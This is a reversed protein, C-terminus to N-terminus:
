CTCTSSWRLTASQYLSKFEEPLHCRVVTTMDCLQYLMGKLLHLVKEAVDAKALSLLVEVLMRYTAKFGFKGKWIQLAKIRKDQEDKGEQEVDGLDNESLGLYTAVKRWSTLFIAIARLHDDSISASLKEPHVSVKGLLEELTIAAM